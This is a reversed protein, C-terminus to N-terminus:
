FPLKVCTTDELGGGCFAFIRSKQLSKCIVPSLTSHPLNLYAKFEEPVSSSSRLCIHIPVVDAGDDDEPTEVDGVNKPRGVALFFLHDSQYIPLLNRGWIGLSIGVVM